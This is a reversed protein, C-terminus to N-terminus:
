LSNTGAQNPLNLVAAGPNNDTVALYSIDLNQLTVNPLVKLVIFTYSFTVYSFTYGSHTQAVGSNGIVICNVCYTFRLNSFTVDTMASAFSFMTGNGGVLTPTTGEGVFAISSV